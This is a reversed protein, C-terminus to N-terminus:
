NCDGHTEELVFTDVRTLTREGDDSFSIVSRSPCSHCSTVVGLSVREGIPEPVEFVLSADQEIHIPACGEGQCATVISRAHSSRVAVLGVNVTPSGCAPCLLASYGAEDSNETAFRGQSRALEAM